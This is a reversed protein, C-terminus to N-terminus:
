DSSNKVYLFSPNQNRQQIQEQISKKILVDVNKKHQMLQRLRKPSQGERLSTPEMKKMKGQKKLKKSTGSFMKHSKNSEHKGNMLSKKKSNRNGKKKGLLVPQATPEFTKLINSTPLLDEQRALILRKTRKQIEEAKYNDLPIWWNYGPSDNSIPPSPIVTSEACTGIGNLIFWLIPVMMTLINPKGKYSTESCLM